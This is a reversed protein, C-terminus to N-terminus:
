VFFIFFFHILSINPTQTQITVGVASCDWPAVAVCVFLSKKNNTGTYRGDQYPMLVSEILEGTAMLRYARKITGDKSVQESVIELAHEKTVQELQKRLQKPINHMKSLDTIGKDHIWQLVQKARFKPYKWADVILTTLEEDSVTSLTILKSAEETSTTDTSSSQLRFRSSTLSSAPSMGSSYYRFMPEKRSNGRDKDFTWQSWSSWDRVRTRSLVQQPLRISPHYGRIVFGDIMTLSRSLVLMTTVIHIIVVVLSRRFRTAVRSSFANKTPNGGVRSTASTLLSLIM